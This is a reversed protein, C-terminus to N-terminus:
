FFQNEEGEEKKEGSNGGEEEEQKFSGPSVASGKMKANEKDGSSSSQLAQQKLALEEKLKVFERYILLDFANFNSLWDKMTPDHIRRAILLIPNEYDRLRFQQNQELSQKDVYVGIYQQIHGYMEEKNCDRFSQRVDEFIKKLETELRQITHIRESIQDAKVERINENDM